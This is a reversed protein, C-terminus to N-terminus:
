SSLRLGREGPWAALIEIGIVKGDKDLDFNVMADDVTVTRVASGPSIPGHLYVYTGEAEPDYTWTGPHRKM